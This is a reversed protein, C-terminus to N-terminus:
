RSRALMFDPLRYLGTLVPVGVREGVERVTEPTLIYARLRAIRGEEEELRTIGMLVERGEHEGFSLVLPEGDLVHREPRWRKPRVEPPLEPHVHVSQWLFSGEREFQARGVEVLSGLEEVTATDSMLALLGPLDAAKLRDVFADVLRASPRRRPGPAPAEALRERARHLASKVAGVSTGLVEAIERLSMEFMEKMVFAAREQAALRDLLVASAERLERGQAPGPGATRHLASAAEARRTVEVQRHRVRDIWLRTATRLLYGRPDDIERHVAALAGFGRILTDQVLDEADWLDGTLRRCYGHLAPRFPALGDVYRCWAAQTHSRVEDPIEPDAV